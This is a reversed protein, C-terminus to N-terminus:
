SVINLVLIFFFSFSFLFILKWFDNQMVFLNIKILFFALTHLRKLTAANFIIEM